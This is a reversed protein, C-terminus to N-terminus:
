HGRSDREGEGLYYPLAGDRLHLRSLESLELWFMLSLVLWSLGRILYPLSVMEPVLFLFTETVEETM